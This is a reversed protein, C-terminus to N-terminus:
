VTACKKQKIMKVIKIQCLFIVLNRNLTFIDSRYVIKNNTKSKQKCKSKFGDILHIEFEYKIIIKDLCKVLM